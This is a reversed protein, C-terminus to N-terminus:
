TWDEVDDIDSRIEDIVNDLYYIENRLDDIRADFEDQSIWPVNNITGNVWPWIFFWIARGILNFRIWNLVKM